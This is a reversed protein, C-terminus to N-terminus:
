VVPLSLKLTQGNEHVSESYIKRVTQIGAAIFDIIAAKKDRIDLGQAQLVSLFVSQVPEIQATNREEVLAADVLSSIISFGFDANCRCENRANCELQGYESM